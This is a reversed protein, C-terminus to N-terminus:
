ATITYKIWDIGFIKSDAVFRPDKVAGKLLVILSDHITKDKFMRELYSIGEKQVPKSGAIEGFLSTIGSLIWRKFADSSDFPMEENTSDTAAPPTYPVSSQKVSHYGYFGCAFFLLPLYCVKPYSAM